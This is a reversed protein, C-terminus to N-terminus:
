LFGNVWVPILYQLFFYSDTIAFSFRSHTVLPCIEPSSRLFFSSTM